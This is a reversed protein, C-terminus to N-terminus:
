PQRAQTIARDFRFSRRENELEAYRDASLDAARSGADDEKRAPMVPSATEAGSRGKTIHRESQSMAEGELPVPMGFRRSARRVKKYGVPVTM